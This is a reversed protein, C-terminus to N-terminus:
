HTKLKFEMTLQEKVSFTFVSETTEAYRLKKTTELNLIM